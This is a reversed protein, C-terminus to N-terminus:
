LGLQKRVKRRDSYFHQDEYAWNQCASPCRTASWYEYDLSKDECDKFECVYVKRRRGFQTATIDVIKGRYVNFTHGEGDWLEIDKLGARKCALYLQISARGCYGGLGAPETGYLGREEKEIKEFSKRVEKAIAKVQPLSM